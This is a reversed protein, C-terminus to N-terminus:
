RRTPRRYRVHKRRLIFPDREEVVPQNPIVGGVAFQHRPAIQAQIASVCDDPSAASENTTAGDFVAQAGEPLKELLMVRTVLQFDDGNSEVGLQNGLVPQSADGRILAALIPNERRM